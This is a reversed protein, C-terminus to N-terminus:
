HTPTLSVCGIEDNFDWHHAAFVQVFLDGILKAFAQMDM